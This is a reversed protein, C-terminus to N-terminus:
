LQWPQNYPNSINTTPIPTQDNNLPNTVPSSQRYTIDGNLSSVPNRYFDQDSAVLVPQYTNNAQAFIDQDEPLKFVEASALLREALQAISEM